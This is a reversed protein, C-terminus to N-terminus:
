RWGRARTGITRHRLKESVRYSESRSARTANASRIIHSHRRSVSTTNSGDHSAPKVWAKMYAFVNMSSGRRVFSYARNDSIDLAPIPMPLELSQAIVLETANVTRATGNRLIQPLVQCALDVDCQDWGAFDIIASVLATCNRLETFWEYHVQAWLGPQKASIAEYESHIHKAYEHLVEAHQEFGGDFDRHSAVTRQFDRSLYLFKATIDTLRTQNYIWELDYKPNAKKQLATSTRLLNDSPFSQDELVLVGTLNRLPLTKWRELYLRYSVDFKVSQM